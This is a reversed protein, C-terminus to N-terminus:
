HRDHIAASGLVHGRVVVLVLERLLVSALKAEVGDGLGHQARVPHRPEFAYARLDACGAGVALSREALHWVAPVDDRAIGYESREALRRAVIDRLREAQADIARTEHTVIRFNEHTAVASVAAGLDDVGRSFSHLGRLAYMFEQHGLGSNGFSSRM